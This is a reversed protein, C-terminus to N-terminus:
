KDTSDINNVNKKSSLGLNKASLSLTSFLPPRKCPHILSKAFAFNIDKMRVKLLNLVGNETPASVNSRKPHTSEALSCTSRRSSSSALSHIKTTTPKRAWRFYLWNKSSRHRPLNFLFPNKTEHIIEAFIFPRCIVLRVPFNFVWRLVTKCCVGSCACLSLTHTLSLPSLSINFSRSVLQCLFLL